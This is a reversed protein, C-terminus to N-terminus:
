DNRGVSVKWIIDVTCSRFLSDIVLVPQVIIKSM